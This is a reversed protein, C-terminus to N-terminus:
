APRAAPQSTTGLRSASYAARPLIVPRAPEYSRAHSEGHHVHRTRDAYRRIVGSTCRVCWDGM